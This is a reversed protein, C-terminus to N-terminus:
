ILATGSDVLAEANGKRNIHYARAATEVFFERREDVDLEQTIHDYARVLQGFSSYLRDVPFNSGFMCRDPGFIALTDLVFPRISVETWHHDNTGLGSIKVTVNACAAVERLGDRWLQVSDVDRGIPMGAHDLIITTDGYTRALEAADVLQSPFVQLDFSLNYQALLAFNRRWTPDTIITNRGTHTYTPDPHWNLIYRIGRVSNLSALKAIQDPATDSLLDVKAVQVTPIGETHCLEDIWLAEGLSDQAGNEIHVSALLDCEGIDELYDDLLYNRRIPTDDGHYPAPGTRQLWPYSKTFDTLHHHADIFQFTM